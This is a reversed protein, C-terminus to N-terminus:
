GEADASSLRKLEMNKSKLFDFLQMESLLRAAFLFLKFGRGVFRIKGSFSLICLVSRVRDQADKKYRKGFKLLIVTGNPPPSAQRM